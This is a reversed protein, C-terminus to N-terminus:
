RAAAIAGSEADGAAARFTAFLERGTGFGNRSLDPVAVPRQNLVDDAVHARLEGKYSDLTLMDGDQVKALL